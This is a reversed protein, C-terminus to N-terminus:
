QGGQFRAIAEIAGVTSTTAGAISEAGQAALVLRQFFTNIKGLLGPERIDERRVFAGTLCDLADELDVSGTIRSGLLATEIDRLRRVLFTKADASLAPSGTVSDILERVDHILSDLHEPGIAPEPCCRHLARSAAELGFLAAGDLPVPVIFKAAFLDTPAYTAAAMVVDDTLRKVLAEVQHFHQLLFAPDEEDPLAEVSSRTARALRGIELVRLAVAFPEDADEALGLVEGVTKDGNRSHLSELFAGLRGAPNDMWRPM